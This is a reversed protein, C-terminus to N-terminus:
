NKGGFRYNMGVRVERGMAPYGLVEQYQRDFLNQARVYASVGRRFEYSAAADFRAYGATHPNVINFFLFDSDMRPGTFYAGLSAILRRYGTLFSISGSHLPRRLLRNGPELAPDFANPSELVRTDDYTYNALVRLWRAPQAEAAFNVGRSKAKDTNFFTGWFPSGCGAPQPFSCTGFISCSQFSVLDYFRSSFYDISFRARSDAIKQDIGISWTKSVEPKLEPNGPDCIDFGTTQDFRPEKIGQGYFFRLRTEGWFDRGQLLALSAGARPVVRTGFNGNAEARAGFSLTARPHPSYRFDLFGGQNNRRVHGARISSLFGNEVEYQYGATAGFNPLLYSAQAAIGARNQKSSSNGPFDCFETTAVSNPSAPDKPCFANPDTAYFSQTPNNSIRRNYSETGSVQYHWHSGSAFDWRANSSFFDYDTHADSNPAGVILTQGPTGANSGTNRLSLRLQNRDNFTYGFNGSLTRDVFRTNVDPGDASFYSGAASYDFKGLLGSAQAGGRGTGFSGGEAFINAAPVRTTGRHTFVQIVGSVADTGYIASEAGRVIEVKDINDLAFNALDVADGPPNVATGDVLVKTYNSNGGNLFTSAFAGELGVRGLAVGPAYVLLEPLTFSKRQEIEERTFVTVPASTEQVPLPEAQATVVVSSSLRELELRLDLKRTEGASVAVGADRPVFPSRNFEIRYTGPPIALTYEGDTASTAKWVQPNSDGALQATVSVGGIGSGSADLITGTVHADPPNNQCFTSNCFAALFVASLFFRFEKTKM